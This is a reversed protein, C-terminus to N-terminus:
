AASARPLGRVGAVAARHRHREHLLVAAAGGLLRDDPRLQAPHPPLLSYKSQGVTREAHAVEIEVPHRAFTYALAPVYTSVETCRNVADVVSRHYGRLMCGQDTIRISTTRERLRNMLRSAAKRWLVDSAACASAHRRLRRGADM